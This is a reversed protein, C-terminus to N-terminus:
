AEEMRLTFLEQLVPIFKDTAIRKLHSPINMIVTYEIKSTEKGLLQWNGDPAFFTEFVWQTASYAFGKERMVKKCTPISDINIIMRNEISQLYYSSTILPLKSFDARNQMGNILVSDKHAILAASDNLLVIKNKWDAAIQPYGNYIPILFVGQHNSELMDIMENVNRKHMSLFCVEDFSVDLLNSIYASLTPTTYVNLVPLMNKEAKVNLFNEYSTVIPQVIHLFDAGDETLQLGKKSRIFLTMGLEKEMNKIIFSLNQHSLFLEDAAKNINLTQAVTLFIKMNEIKM